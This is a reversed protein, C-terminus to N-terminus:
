ARSRCAPEKKLPRHVKWEVIALPHCSPVWEENWCTLGVSAWIVLDRRTARGRMMRCPRSGGTGRKARRRRAIKRLKAEFTGRTRKRTRAAHAPSLGDAPDRTPKREDSERLDLEPNKCRAPMDYAQQRRRQRISPDFAPVEQQWGFLLHSVGHGM